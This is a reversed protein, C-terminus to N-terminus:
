ARMRRRAELAAIGTGILLWTSPEPVAAPAAGDYAIQMNFGNLTSSIGSGNTRGVNFM